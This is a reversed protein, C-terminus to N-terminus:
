DKKAARFGNRARVLQATGRYSRGMKPRLSKAGEAGTRAVDRASVAASRVQRTRCGRPSNAM